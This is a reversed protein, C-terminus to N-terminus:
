QGARDKIHRNIIATVADIATACEAPEFRPNDGCIHERQETTKTYSGDAREVEVTITTTIKM